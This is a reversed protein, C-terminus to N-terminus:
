WLCLVYSIRYLCYFVTFTCAIFYEM